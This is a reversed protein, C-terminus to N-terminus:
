AAIGYISGEIQFPTRSGLWAFKIEELGATRLANLRREASPQPQADAYVRILALLMGLQEKSLRRYPIGRNAYWRRTAPNLYDTVDEILDQKVKENLIVTSFPRSTRAM